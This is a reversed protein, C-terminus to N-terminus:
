HGIEEVDDEEEHQTSGDAAEQVYNYPAKRSAFAKNMWWGGAGLTVMAEGPIVVNGDEAPYEQAAFTTITVFRNGRTIGDNFGDGSQEEDAIVNGEEHEVHTGTEKAEAVKTLNM